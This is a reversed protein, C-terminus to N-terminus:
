DQGDEEKAAPRITPLSPVPGYPLVPTTPALGTGPEAVERLDFNWEPKGNVTRVVPYSEIGAEAKDLAYGCSVYSLDPMGDLMGTALRARRLRTRVGSTRLNRSHKKFTLALADDFVYVPMEDSGRRDVGPLAVLEVDALDVANNWVVGARVRYHRKRGEATYQEWARDVLSLLVKAREGNLM